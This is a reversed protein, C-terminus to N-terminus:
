IMDQLNTKINDKWISRHRELPRKGVTYLVGLLSVKVGYSAMSAEYYDEIHNHVLVTLGLQFGCASMRYSLHSDVEGSPTHILRCLVNARVRGHVTLSPHAELTEKTGTDGEIDREGVTTGESL